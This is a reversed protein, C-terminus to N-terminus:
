WYMRIVGDKVKKELRLKEHNKYEKDERTDQYQVKQYTFGCYKLLEIYSKKVKYVANFEKKVLQKLLNPNWFEGKLGLQEPSNKNILKKIKEKQEKTLKYNRANSIPKDKLGKIGQKNFLTIWKEIADQSKSMIKAIEKHKYGKLNLLVTQIRIYEQKKINQKLAQELEKIKVQQNTQKSKNPMLKNIIARNHCVFAFLEV